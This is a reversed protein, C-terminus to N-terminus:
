QEDRTFADVVSPVPFRFCFGVGAYGLIAKKPFKICELRVRVLSKRKPTSFFLLRYIIINYEILTIYRKDDPFVAGAEDKVLPYRNFQFIRHKSNFM